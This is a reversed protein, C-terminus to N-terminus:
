ADGGIESVLTDLLEMVGIRDAPDLAALADTLGYALRTAEGKETLVVTSRNIPALEDAVILDCPPIYTHM